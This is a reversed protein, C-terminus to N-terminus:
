TKTKNTKSLYLLNGARRDSPRVRFYQQRHFGSRLGVPGARSPTIRGFLATSGSHARHFGVDLSQLGGLRSDCQYSSRPFFIFAVAGFLISWIISMVMGHSYPVSGPTLVQVGHEFDTQSVGFDELGLSEFTFSLVDLFWSALLFVWIPVAPATPKAAFGIAFHGPLM